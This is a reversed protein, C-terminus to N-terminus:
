ESMLSSIGPFKKTNFLTNLLQRQRGAISDQKRTKLQPAVVGAGESGQHILQGDEKEHFFVGTYLIGKLPAYVALRTNRTKICGIGPFSLFVFWTWLTNFIESSYCIDDNM